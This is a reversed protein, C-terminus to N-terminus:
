RVFPKKHNNIRIVLDLFLDEWEVQNILKKLRKLNVDIGEKIKGSVTM